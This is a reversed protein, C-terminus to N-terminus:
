PARGPETMKPSAPGPSRRVASRAAELARAVSPEDGTSAYRLRAYDRVSRAIRPREDAHLVEAEEVRDAFRALTESPVRAVGADTLAAELAAYAALPAESTSTAPASPRLRNRLARGILLVGFLAVLLLSLEFPSRRGLWDDVAEWSTSIGDLIASLWPTTTPSSAALDAPPTTDLTEWRDDVWVETWSHANKERVIRYGLPSQEVVRYGTVVRAPVNAARALLATAGAFYECHGEKHTELFDVIPDVKPTREFELSYRYDARLREEIRLLRERPTGELAGWSALIELLRQRLRPPMALDEGTWSQVHQPAGRSFWERKSFLNNGAPRALGYADLQFVAESFVYDGSDLTTFYTKPRRAMEIEVLGERSAPETPTEIIEGPPLVDTQDWRGTSYRTLVFARLREPADGRVRLVVADSEALGALDGLTMTNGLGTQNQELRAVLRAVIAGQVRPLVVFATVGLGIAVLTGFVVSAAHRGGLRRLPARAPDDVRQAAFGLLVAAAACAPYVFGTEARGAATLAVLNAALTVRVGYVPRAV